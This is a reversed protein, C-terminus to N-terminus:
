TSKQCVPMCMMVSQFVQSLVFLVNLTVTGLMQQPGIIADKSRKWSCSRQLNWNMPYGAKEKGQCHCECKIKLSDEYISQSVIVKQDICTWSSM